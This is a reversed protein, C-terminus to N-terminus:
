VKRHRDVFEIGNDHLVVDLESVDIEQALPKIFVKVWRGNRHRVGAGWPFEVSEYPKLQTIRNM